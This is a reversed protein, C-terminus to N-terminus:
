MVEVVEIEVEDRRKGNKKEEGYETNRHETENWPIWAM